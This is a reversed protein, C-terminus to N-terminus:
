DFDVWKLPDLRRVSIFVGTQPYIWRITQKLGSPICSLLIHAEYCVRKGKHEQSERKGKAM